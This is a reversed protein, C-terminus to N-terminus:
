VCLSVGGQPVASGVGYAGKGGDWGVVRKVRLGRGVGRGGGNWGQRM